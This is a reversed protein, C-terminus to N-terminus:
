RCLRVTLCFLFCRVFCGLMLYDKFHSSKAYFFTCGNKFTKFFRILVPTRVCWVTLTYTATVYSIYAIASDTGIFVMSAVLLVAAVPVLALMIAIHPFLLAKLIKKLKM